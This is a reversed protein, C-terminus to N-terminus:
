KKYKTQPPPIMLQSRPSILDKDLLIINGDKAGSGLSREYTLNLFLYWTIIAVKLVRLKSIRDGLM